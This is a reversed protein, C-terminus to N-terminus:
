RNMIGLSDIDHALATSFLIAGKENVHNADKFFLTDSCIWMDTYDLIPISFLHSLADYTNMAESEDLNRKLRHYMPAYVFVVETGEAKVQTLM